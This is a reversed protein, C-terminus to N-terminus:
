YFCFFHLQLADQVLSITKAYPKPVSILGLLDHHTVQSVAISQNNNIGM